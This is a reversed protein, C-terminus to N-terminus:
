SPAVDGAPRKCGIFIFTRRERRLHVVLVSTLYRASSSKIERKAASELPKGKASMDAAGGPEPISGHLQPLNQSHVPNWTHARWFSVYTELSRADLSNSVIFQLPTRQQQGSGVAVRLQASLLNPAAAFAARGVEVGGSASEAFREM